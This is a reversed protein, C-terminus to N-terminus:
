LTTTSEKSQRDKSENERTETGNMRGVHKRFGKLANAWM